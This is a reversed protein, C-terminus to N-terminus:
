YEVKSRGAASVSMMPRTTQNARSIQHEDLKRYLTSRGIGLCKAARTMCGGSYHLAFRIAEEQILRLTKLKGHVDTIRPQLPIPTSIDDSHTFDEVHLVESRARCVAQWIASSLEHVNTPWPRECLWRMAEPSISEVHKMESAAHHALWYEAIAPIDSRREALTPLSLVVSRLRGLLSAYLRDAAATSKSHQDQSCILRVDIKVAIDSGVPTITGTELFQLLQTKASDPLDQVNELYLTGGEAESIKGIIQQQSDHQSGFLVGEAHSVSLMRCNVAVFRKNARMGGGHVARALLEIETGPAGEIWIPIKSSAAKRAISLMEILKPHNGVIDTFDMSGSIKRELWGTYQALNRLQMVMRLTHRLRDFSVPMLLYDTAGSQLIDAAFADNAYSILAIIPLDPYLTRLDRIVEKSKQGLVRTDVMAISFGGNAEDNLLRHAASPHRVYVLEYQLRQGLAESFLLQHSDAAIMLIKLAMFYEM